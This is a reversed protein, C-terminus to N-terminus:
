STYKAIIRIVIFRDFTSAVYLEDAQEASFDREVLDPGAPRAREARQTTCIWKRRSVGRIGAERVALWGRAAGCALRRRFRGTSALRGYTRRSQGHFARWRETLVADTQRHASARRKAWEYYGSTSVGLM